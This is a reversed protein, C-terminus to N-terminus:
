GDRVELPAQRTRAHALKDVIDWLLRLQLMAVWEGANERMVVWPLAGAEADRKAQDLWRLATIARRGKVETHVGAGFIRIDGASGRGEHQVTREAELGLARLARCAELELRKGKQRSNM